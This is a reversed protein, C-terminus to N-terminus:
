LDSAKDTKGEPCGEQHGPPSYASLDKVTVCLKDETSKDSVEFLSVSEEQFKVNEKGKGVDKARM